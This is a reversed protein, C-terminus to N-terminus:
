RFDVLLCILQVHKQPDVLYTRLSKQASNIKNNIEGLVPWAREGCKLEVTLDCRAEEFDYHIAEGRNDRIGGVTLNFRAIKRM